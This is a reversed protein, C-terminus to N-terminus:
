TSKQEPLSSLTLNLKAAIQRLISLLAQTQLIGPPTKFSYFLYHHGKLHLVKLHLYEKINQLSDIQSIHKDLEKYAALTLFKDPRM